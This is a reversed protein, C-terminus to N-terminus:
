NKLFMIQADRHTKVGGLRMKPYSRKFNIPIQMLELYLKKAPFSLLIKLSSCTLYLPPGHVFPMKTGLCCVAHVITQTIITVAQSEGCQILFDNSSEVCGQGRPEKLGGWVM